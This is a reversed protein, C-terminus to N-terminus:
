AHSLAPEAHPEMGPAPPALEEVPQHKRVVLLSGPWERAIREARFGFLHSQLGWEEGVGIVVLDFRGAHALVAEVPSTGEGVWETKGGAVDPDPAEEGLPGKGDAVRLLTVDAGTAGVVRRALDLALRDHPSNHFPVLVRPRDPLGRDVLIAVDTDAGTLVRHVTGGLFTQGLMSQHAGMLILDARKARAVRAIDSALDRTRFSVSESPLGLSSAAQLMPGLVDEGSRRSGTLAAVLDERADPAVLHLAYLKARKDDRDDLLAV